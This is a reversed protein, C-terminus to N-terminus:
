KTKKKCIKEPDFIQGDPCTHRTKIFQNGNQICTYYSKNDKDLPDAFNGEKDCMFGCSSVEPDFKLKEKCQLLVPTTQNCYIYLELNQPHPIFQNNRGRCEESDTYINCVAGVHCTGNTAEFNGADCTYGTRM